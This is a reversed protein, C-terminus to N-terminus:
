GIINKKNKRQVQLYRLEWAYNKNINYTALAVDVNAIVNEDDIDTM